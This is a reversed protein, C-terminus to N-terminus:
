NPNASNDISPYARLVQAPQGDNILLLAESASPLSSGAIKSTVTTNAFIRINSTIGGTPVTGSCNLLLDGVLETIGEARVLPTVGANATCQFTQANVSTAGVLLAVVALVPIWKRFDAM